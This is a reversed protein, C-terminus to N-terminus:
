FNEDLIFKTVMESGLSWAAGWLDTPSEFSVVYLRDTKENAILLQHITVTDLGPTTKTYQMGYVVFPNQPNEWESILTVTTDNKILEHFARAYQKAWMKAKDSVHSVCNVSLGTRFSKEIEVNELSISYSETGEITEHHTFWGKHKLFKAKIEPMSFWEFGSPANPANDGSVAQVKGPLTVITLVTILLSIFGYKMLM